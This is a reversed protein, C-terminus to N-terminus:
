MHEKYWEIVAERNSDFFQTSIYIDCGNFNLAKVRYRKQTSNGMNDSRDNAIAPYDTSQFLCKTYEKTKLKEIEELTIKSKAILDELLNYFLKAVPILGEGWTAEDNIDFPIESLLFSFDEVELNMKLLLDKVFSIINNASLNTEYFIGSNEVQKAKRLQRDDNTIYVRTANPISYNKVALDSILDSNLDYATGVFKTLLDGWSSVKTYEGVFLFGRPKTDSFDM